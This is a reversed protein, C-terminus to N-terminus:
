RVRARRRMVAVVVGGALLLAIAGAVLQLSSTARGALVNSAPAPTPAPPPEAAGGAPVEVAAAVLDEQADLAAAALRKSPQLVEGFEGVLRDLLRGADYGLRAAETASTRYEDAFASTFRESVGTDRQDIPRPRLVVDGAPGTGGADVDVAVSLVGRAAAVDSVDSASAGAVLTIVAAAGADLGQQVQAVTAEPAGADVTVVDVDIGGLHDGAEEGAAHTVDPSEDVAVRFGRMAEASAAVDSTVVVISFRHAAAPPTATMWVTLLTAVVLWRRRSHVRAGRGDGGGAALPLARDGMAEATEPPVAM